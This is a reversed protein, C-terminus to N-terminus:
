VLSFTGTLSDIEDRSGPGIGVVTVTGAPIETHGADRVMYCVMGSNQADGFLRKLADLNPASVVIKRAGNERWTDLVKPYMRKAKLACEVAAHSCQAALKGKSLKLDKRTVLVMTLEDEAM